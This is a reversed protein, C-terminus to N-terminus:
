LLRRTTYCGFKTAQGALDQLYRQYDDACFFATQNNDRQIIHRPIGAVALRARRPM